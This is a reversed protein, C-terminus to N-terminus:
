RQSIMAIVDEGDYFVLEEGNIIHRNGLHNPVLVTDDEKVINRYRFKSGLEVVRAQVCAIYNRDMTEPLEIISSQLPKQLIKVAVVDKLLRM